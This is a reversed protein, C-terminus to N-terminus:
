IVAYPKFIIEPMNSLEYRQESNGIAENPPVTTPLSNKLLVRL